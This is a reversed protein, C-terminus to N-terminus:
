KFMSKDIQIKKDRLQWKIIFNDVIKIQTRIETCDATFSVGLLTAPMMSEFTPTAVHIVLASEVL